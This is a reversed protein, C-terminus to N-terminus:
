LVAPGIVDEGSSKCDGAPTLCDRDGALISREARLESATLGALSDRAGSCARERARHPGRTEHLELPGSGYRRETCRSM